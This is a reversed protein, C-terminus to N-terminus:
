LQEASLQCSNLFEMIHRRNASWDSSMVIQRKEKVQGNVLGGKRETCYTCVGKPWSKRRFQKNSVPFFPYNQVFFTLYRGNKSFIESAFISEEVIEEYEEIMEPTACAHIATMLHFCM